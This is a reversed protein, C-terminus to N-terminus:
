RRLEMVRARSRAAGEADGMQEQLLILQEWAPIDRPTMDLYRQLDHIAQNTMGEHLSISAELLVVGAGGHDFRYLDAVAERASQTDGSLLELRAMNLRATRHNPQLAFGRTFAERGRGYDQLVGFLRGATFHLLPDDANKESAREYVEALRTLDWEEPTRSRMQGVREAIAYLRDTVGVSTAFVDMSLLDGIRWWMETEDYPTFLTRERAIEYWLPFEKWWSEPEIGPDDPDQVEWLAAMGDSILAAVAVRGAFTLHVHELFFKGDGSFTPNEEHLWRDADVMGVHEPYDDVLMRQLDRIRSDARFRKRDLDCALRYLPWARAMDSQAERIQAAEYVPLASRLGALADAYQAALVEQAGYAAPESDLPPWDNLNVAPICVLVKAEHSLAREIIDRFNAEVHHLMGDLAPDDHAISVEQFEDLGKWIGEEWDIMRESIRQALRDAARGTRTERVVDLFRALTGIGKVQGFTSAPGFPGIVENHGAYLVILDPNLALSERAFLRLVHSNIAVVSLNIVEVPQEPFRERWVVEVLRALNYGMLPFGAAASEGLLVVRKVGPEKEVPIWLPQPAPMGARQFFRKAYERNTTAYRQGDHEMELLLREPEYLGAVWFFLELAAFFVFGILFVRFIQYIWRMSGHFIRIASPM